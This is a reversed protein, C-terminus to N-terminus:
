PRESRPPDPRGDADRRSRRGLLSWTAAASASVLVVGLAVLFEQPARTPDYLGAAFTAWAVLTAVLLTASLRHRGRRLGRVGAAALVSAVLVFGGFVAVEVIAFAGGAWTALRYYAGDHELYYIGQGLSLHDSYFFEPPPNWPEPGYFVARGDAADLAARFAHRADPSLDASDLVDAEAPVEGREVRDVSHHYESAGPYPVAQWGAAVVAVALVVLAVSPLASRDLSVM